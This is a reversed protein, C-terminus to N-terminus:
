VSPASETIANYAYELLSIMTVMAKDAHSLATKAASELDVRIRGNQLDELQPVPEKPHDLLQSALTTLTEVVISSSVCIQKTAPGLRVIENELRFINNTKSKVGTNPVDGADNFWSLVNKVTEVELGVGSKLYHNKWANRYHNTSQSMPMLDETYRDIFSECFDHVHKYRAAYRILEGIDSITEPWLAEKKKRRSSVREIIAFVASVIAAGSFEGWAAM